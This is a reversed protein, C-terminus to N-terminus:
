RKMFPLKLQAALKAADADYADGLGFRAVSHESRCRTGFLRDWITLVDGYNSDTEPQWASHHRRHFDPTVFVVAIARLVTGGPRIAAHGFAMTILRFFGHLLVGLPDLGLLAIGALQFAATVPMALPHSRFLTTLDIDNDAHHIRHLRWLPPWQHAIRHTAYGLLDALVFSIAVALFAPMAWLNLLGWGRADILAALSVNALLPLLDFVLVMVGLALNVRWRPEAPVASREAPVALEAVAATFLVSWYIAFGSFGSTLWLIVTQWMNDSKAERDCQM